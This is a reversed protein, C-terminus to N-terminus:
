LPDGIKSDVRASLIKFIQSRKVILFFALVASLGRQPYDGFGFHHTIFPLLLGAAITGGLIMWCAKKYSVSDTFAVGFCSGIFAALVAPAPVDFVFAIFTSSVAVVWAILGDVHAHM